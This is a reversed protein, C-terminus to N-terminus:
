IKNIIDDYYILMKTLDISNKTGHLNQNYLVRIENLGIKKVSSKIDEIESMYSLYYIKCAENTFIKNKKMNKIKSLKILIKKYESIDRPNHTCRFSSTRNYGASLSYKKLYAMEYLVSGYNSVAFNINKLNLLYINSIDKPIWFLDSYKKKLKTYINKSEIIANPHVKVGIPLKFKKILELTNVTWDYHDDFLLSGYYHPADFFDHLFLVGKLKKISLNNYIKKYKFPNHSVGRGVKDELGQYKLDIQKKAILIKENKNKLKKFEKNYSLVDTNSSYKNKVNTIFNFLEGCTFCKVKNKRFTRMPIGHSIYVTDCALYKKINYNRVLKKAKKLSLIAKFIIYFFYFDKKNVTPEMRYRIFTDSILDGLLINQFSLNDIKKNKIDRYIKITEKLSVLFDILNYNELTEFRSIGIASYLSKWKLKLFYYFIKSRIFFFVQFFFSNKKLPYINHTWLCVLNYKKIFNEKILLKWYLLFFYDAPMEFFITKKNKDFAIKKNSNNIIFNLENKNKLIKLFRYFFNM